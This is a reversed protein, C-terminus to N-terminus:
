GYAIYHGEIAHKGRHVAAACLIFQTKNEILILPPRIRDHLKVTQNKEELYKFRNISIVLCQPLSKFDMQKSTAQKRKCEPCKVEDQGQLVEM